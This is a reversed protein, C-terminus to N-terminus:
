RGVCPSQCHPATLPRPSAALFGLIEGEKIEINLNDVAIFDKYRKVLNKIEVIM